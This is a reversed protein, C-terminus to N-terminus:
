SSTGILDFYHQILAGRTNVTPGSVIGLRKITRNITKAVSEETVSLHTAIAQNSLGAAVMRLVALQSTTLNIRPIEGAASQEARELSAHIADVITATNEVQQKILYVMGAPAKELNTSHLRPDAYSSLLVIGLKPFKNRLFEAVDIGTPGPGFNLDTVLVDPKYEEVVSIASPASHAIAVVDIGRASLSDAVGSLTLKHDDAVVVRLATMSHTNDTKEGEDM